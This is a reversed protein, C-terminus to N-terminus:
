QSENFLKLSDAGGSNLLLILTNVGARLTPTKRKLVSYRTEDLRLVSDDVRRVGPYYGYGPYRAHHATEM